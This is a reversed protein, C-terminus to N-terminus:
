VLMWFLVNYRDRNLLWRTDLVHYRDICKSKVKPCLVHDITYTINRMIRHRRFGAISLPFTSEAYKTRKLFCMCKFNPILQINKEEKKIFLFQNQHLFFVFTGLTPKYKNDCSAMYLSSHGRSGGELDRVQCCCNGPVFLRRSISCLCQSALCSCYSVIWIKKKIKYKIKIKKKLKEFLLLINMIWLM